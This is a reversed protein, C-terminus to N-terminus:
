FQQFNAKINNKMDLSCVQMKTWLHVFYLMTVIGCGQVCM